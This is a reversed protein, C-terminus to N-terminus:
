SVFREWWLDAPIGEIAPSKTEEAPYFDEEICLDLGHINMFEILEGVINVAMCSDTEIKPPIVKGELPKEPKNM